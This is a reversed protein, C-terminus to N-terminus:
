FPKVRMLVIILGLVGCMSWALPELGGGGRALTGRVRRLLLLELVVLLFSLRVWWLHHLAGSALRDMAVGTLVLLGLSVRVYPLLPAVARAGDAPATGARRAAALMVAVAGIQGSGLIAVLVHVVVAINYVSNM